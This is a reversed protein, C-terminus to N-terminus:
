KVEYPKEKSGNGAKYFVKDNLYIVPRVIAYSSANTLELAGYRTAQFVTSDDEKNATVLWWNFDSVLYNYNQCTKSEASKCNPDLSAYLFDSVTLLGFRQNQVVESCEETNNKVESRVTRKGTCVNFSVMKAKDHDSLIDEGDEEVPNKYVKDLYDRVRSASYQNMGSDYSRNENYRDDWPQTYSIGKESVLVLNNNATIRVIRWLSKDLQVYNNINEGRYTYTGNHAYLGYGTSVVTQDSLIKQYLEVTTYEEGCNLYPIYYYDDSTKQVQVKGSCITEHIPYESLDKMYGAAVLNSSDIEVIDGDIGPLSSPNEEFYKEAAEKLMNELTTVDYDNNGLSLLSLLLVLVLFIVVIIGMFRFMRKKARVRELLIEDNDDDEEIIFDEEKQEEKVEELEENM